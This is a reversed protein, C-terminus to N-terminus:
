FLTSRFHYLTRASGAQLSEAERVGRINHLADVLCLKSCSGGVKPSPFDQGMKLLRNSRFRLDELSTGKLVGVIMQWHM